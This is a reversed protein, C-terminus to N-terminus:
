NTHFYNNQREGKNCAVLVFWFLIPGESGYIERIHLPPNM